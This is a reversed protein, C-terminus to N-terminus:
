YRGAVTGGIVLHLAMEKKVRSVRIKCRYAELDYANPGM